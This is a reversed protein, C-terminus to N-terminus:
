WVGEDPRKRVRYRLSARRLGHDGLDKDLGPGDNAADNGVKGEAALEGMLELSVKAEHPSQLRGGEMGDGLSVLGVAAGLRDLEASLVQM